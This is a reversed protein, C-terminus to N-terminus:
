GALVHLHITCAPRRRYVVVQFRDRFHQAQRRSIGSSLSVWGIANQQLKRNGHVTVPIQLDARQPTNKTVEVSNTTEDYGAFVLV